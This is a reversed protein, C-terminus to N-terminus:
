ELRAFRDHITSDAGGGDAYGLYRSAQENDPDLALAKKLQFAAEPMRGAEYYRVGATVCREIEARRLREELAEDPWLRQAQQWLQVAGEVDGTAHRGDGAEMFEAAEGRRLRGLAERARESSPDLALYERWAGAASAWEARSELEEGRAALAELLRLRVARREQFLEESWPDLEAAHSLTELAEALEGQEAREEAERRLSAVLGCTAEALERAIEVDHPAGELLSLLVERARAQEGFRAAERALDLERERRSGTFLAPASALDADFGMVSGNACSVALYRANPSLSTGTPRSDLEYEWLPAGGPGLCTLLHTVGDSAIVAAFEAEGDVALGVIPLGLSARWRVGGDEDMAAVTGADSGAVPRAGSAPLALATIPEGLAFEWLMSRTSELVLLQGDQAGSAVVRGDTTIAVRNIASPMGRTWGIRGNADGFALTNTASLPDALACYFWGTQPALAVDTCAVHRESMLRVKRGERFVYINDNTMGVLMRGDPVVEVKYLREVSIATLESAAGDPAVALVQYTRNELEDPRVLLASGEASLTHAVVPLLGRFRDQWLLNVSTFSM